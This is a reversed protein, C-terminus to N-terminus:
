IKKGNFIPIDKYKFSDISDICALNFEFNEPNTYSRHHTYIGCVSCFFHEAHQKKGFKYSSLKDKGKIVELNSLKIMAM